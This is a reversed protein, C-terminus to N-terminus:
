MNGYRILVTCSTPTHCRQLREPLSTLTPVVCLNRTYSTHSTYVVAFIPFNGVVCHLVHYAELVYVYKDPDTPSLMSPALDHEAVWRSDLAVVADSTEITEWALNAETLNASIYGASM